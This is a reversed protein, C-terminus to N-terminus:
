GHGFLHKAILEVLGGFFAGFTGAFVHTMRQTTKIATIQNVARALNDNIVELRTNTQEHVRILREIDREQTHRYAELSSM